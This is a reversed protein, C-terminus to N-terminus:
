ARCGKEVAVKDSRFPRLYGDPPPLDRRKRHLCQDMNSARRTIKRASRRWGWQVCQFFWNRTANRSSCVRALGPPYFTLCALGNPHDNNRNSRLRRNQIIPHISLSKWLVFQHTSNSDRHFLSPILPKYGIVPAATFFTDVNIKSKWFFPKNTLRVSRFSLNHAFHMKKDHVQPSCQTAHSELNMRPSVSWIPFSHPSVQFSCHHVDGAPNNMTIFDHSVVSSRMISFWQCKLTWFRLDGM